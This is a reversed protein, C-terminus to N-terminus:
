APTTATFTCSNVLQSGEYGDIRVPLNTSASLYLAERSLGNDTAPDAVDLNLLNVPTGDLTTTSASLTGKTQQAHQLISGFSLEVITAGRLSTVTPDTLSFSKKFMGRGATVTNGGNWTVTNGASPGSVISMSISSPKTFTYEYTSTRTQSGKVSYCQIHTRYGNTAAWATAFAGLPAPPTQAGAGAICLAVAASLLSSFVAFRFM